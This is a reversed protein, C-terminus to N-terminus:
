VEEQSSAPNASHLHKANENVSRNTAMSAIRNAQAFRHAAQTRSYHSFGRGHRKSKGNDLQGM